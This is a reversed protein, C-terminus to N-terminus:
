RNTDSLLWYFRPAIDEWPLRRTRIGERQLSRLEVPHTLSFFNNLRLLKPAAIQMSETAHGGISRAVVDKV